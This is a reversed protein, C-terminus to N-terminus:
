GKRAAGGWPGPVSPTVARKPVELAVAAEVGGGTCGSIGGETACGVWACGGGGWLRRLGTRWGGSSGRAETAADAAADREGPPPTASSCPAM